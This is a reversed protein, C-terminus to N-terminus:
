IDDSKVCFFTIILIFRINKNKYGSDTAYIYQIFFNQSLKSLAQM